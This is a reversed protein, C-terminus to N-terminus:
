RYGLGSDKDGMRHEFKEGFGLLLEFVDDPRCGYFGLFVHVIRYPHDDDHRYEELEESHSESSTQTDDTILEGM